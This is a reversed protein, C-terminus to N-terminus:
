DRDDGPKIRVFRGLERDYIVTVPGSLGRLFDVLTALDPMERIVPKDPKPQPKPQEDM